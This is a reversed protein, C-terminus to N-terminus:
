SPIGGETCVRDPFNPIASFLWDWEIQVRIKPIEPILPIKLQKWVRKKDGAVV